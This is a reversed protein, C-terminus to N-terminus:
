PTRPKRIPASTGYVQERRAASARGAKVPGSNELAWDVARHRYTFSELRHNESTITIAPIGGGEPVALLEAMGPADRLRMAADAHNKRGAKFAPRYLRGYLVIADKSWTAMLEWEDDLDFQAFLPAPQEGM